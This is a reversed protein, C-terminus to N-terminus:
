PFPRERAAAMADMMRRLQREFEPLATRLPEAQGLRAAAELEECLHAFARAGLNAANSKLTHAARRAGALDGSALGAQFAELRRPADGLFLDIIERVADGGIEVALADLVKVDVVAENAM